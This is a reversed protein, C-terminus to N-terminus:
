SQIERGVARSLLLYLKGVDATLFTTRLLNEYDCKGAQELLSEFESVYHSAHQRFEPDQRFKRRIRKQDRLGRTDLVRRTFASKDGRYFLRWVGRPIDRELLRNLDIAISNLNDVVFTASRLFADRRAEVGSPEEAVPESRDTSEPDHRGFKRQRPKEPAPEASTPM